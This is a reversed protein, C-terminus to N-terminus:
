NDVKKDEEGLKTANFSEVSIGDSEDLRLALMITQAFSRILDMHLSPNSNVSDLFKKELSDNGRIVMKFLMKM